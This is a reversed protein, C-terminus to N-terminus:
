IKNKRHNEYNFQSSDCVCVCVQSASIPLVGPLNDQKESETKNLKTKKTLERQTEICENQQKKTRTSCGM